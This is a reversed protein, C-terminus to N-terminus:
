RTHTIGEGSVIAFDARPYQASLRGLQGCTARKSGPQARKAVPLVWPSRHVGMEGYTTPELGLNIMSHDGRDAVGIGAAVLRVSGDRGSGLGRRRGSTDQAQAVLIEVPSTSLEVRVGVATMIPSIQIPQTLVANAFRQKNRPALRWALIRSIEDLL